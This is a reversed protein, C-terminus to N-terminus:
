LGRFRLGKGFILICNKVPRTAAEARAVLARAHSDLLEAVVELLTVPHPTLVELELELLAVPHPSLLVLMVDLLTVPHPAFLVVLLVVVEAEVQASQVVEAAM